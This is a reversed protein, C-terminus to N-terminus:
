TSRPKLQAPVLAAALHGAQLVPTQLATSVRLRDVVHVQGAAVVVGQGGEGAVGGEGTVVDLDFLLVMRRRRPGVPLRVVASSCGVGHTLRSLHVM